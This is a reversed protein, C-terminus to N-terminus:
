RFTVTNSNTQGASNPVILNSVSFLATLFREVLWILIKSDSYITEIYVIGVYKTYNSTMKNHTVFSAYLFLFIYFYLIIITVYTCEPHYLVIYRRKLKPKKIRLFIQALGM